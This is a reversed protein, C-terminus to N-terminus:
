QSAPVSSPDDRTGATDAPAAAADSSTASPASGSQGEQGQVGFEVRRNRARGEKTANTDIPHTEGFGKPPDLRDASVGHDLLYQNVIKARRESLGQNYQDSGIADTYGDVEVHVSPYRQLTDVAQDLISRSDSTPEQLTSAIDTEGPRPRDFKFNVGRLDIVVKQPCGDPGVMTGAPTGPCRDDCNSVGDRDDDLTSCDAPPPVEDIIGQPPPPIARERHGLGLVLGLSVMTDGYHNRRDLDPIYKSSVDDRDYRYAVEGRVGVRDNFAYQVGLGAKASPSWGTHNSIASHHVAGVGVLGYVRTRDGEEGWYHRGTVGLSTTEWEKGGRGSSDKFDANNVASELEFSTNPSVWRGVSLGAQGSDKTKRKSDPSVWGISPVIYWNYSRAYPGAQTWDSDVRPSPNSASSSAASFSVPSADPAPADAAFAMPALVMGIALALTSAALPAHIRM